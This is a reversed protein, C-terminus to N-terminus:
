DYLKKFCYTVEDKTINFSLYETNEIAKWLLKEDKVDAVSIYRVNKYISCFNEDGSYIVFINKDKGKEGLMSFCAEKDIDASFKAEKNLLVFINKVASNNVAEYLKKWQQGREMIGNESLKMSIIKANEYDKENFSQATLPSLVDPTLSSLTSSGLLAFADSSRGIDMMRSYVIRDFLTSAGTFGFVDFGFGDEKKINLSDTTVSKDIDADFKGAIIKIDRKAGDISLTLKGGGEKLVKLKGDSISIFDKKYQPNLLEINKVKASKGNEDFVEFLNELLISEGQSLSIEKPGKIGCVKDIIDISFSDTKEGDYYIEILARESGKSYYVNDRVSGDGDKIVFKPTHEIKEPSNYNKDYPTLTINVSDGKLITEKEAKGLFGAAKEKKARSTVSVANIVKREETPSNIYHLNENKFSKGVMATSGGGDLNLASYIGEEMCIDALTDLSVGRSEKQRGDVTIFYIESGEKDTGIATRPNNGSVDHTIPTKKGESLLLTGGGFAAKSSLADDSVKFDIEVKDDINFNHELFPTMSDDIVLIYGDKPIEITGGLSIGKASVKDEKVTLATVGAPLFPSIGGNFDPTYMLLAGYYDTPKNVHSLATTAGTPAKVSAEFSIYSLSLANDKFVGAAMDKNIHSQLLKEDKVEIGLSFNQDGKYASFFDANIAAVVNEEKSALNMVTDKKDVGKDSKLLEFGLNENKLDAKIININLAYDGYFRQINKLTVGGTLIEQTEKEYLVQANSCLAAAFTFAVLLSLIKKM